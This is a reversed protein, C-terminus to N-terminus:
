AAMLLGSVLGAALFADTWVGGLVWTTALALGVLALTTLTCNALPVLEEAAV